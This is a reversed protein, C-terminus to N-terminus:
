LEAAEAGIVWLLWGVTWLPHEPGRKIEVKLYFGTLLYVVGLCTVVCPLTHTLHQRWNLNALFSPANLPNWLRMSLDPTETKLFATTLTVQYTTHSFASFM